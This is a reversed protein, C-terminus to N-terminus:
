GLHFFRRIFVPYIERWSQKLSRTQLFTLGKKRSFRNIMYQQIITDFARAKLPFESALVAYYELPTQHPQQKINVLSAYFSMKKYLNSAYGPRYAPQLLRGLAARIILILIVGSIISILLTLPSITTDRRAPGTDTDVTIGTDVGEMMMLAENFDDSIENGTFAIGDRTRDEFPTAEFIIWGYGPFYVEPWAHRQKERLVTIGTDEDREGPAYGVSVRVPVGAARLLVAMSSAFNVCNGSREVFLFYDVGDAAEPPSFVETTYPIRALFKQISIAKEYATDYNFTLAQSQWRVRDPLTEPLQLYYDTVWGPYDDGAEMLEETTATSVSTSTSYFQGAKIFRSTKVAVTNLLLPNQRTVEYTTQPLSNTTSEDAEALALDEPILEGIDDIVFGETTEREERVLEALAAIDDPLSGDEAASELDLSYSMRPLTQVSTDLNSSIFDGSLLVVDTKIQPQVTYSMQSRKLTESTGNGQIDSIETGDSINSNFWGTSTYEDYMHMRWYSPRESNIVFNLQTGSDFQGDGFLLDGQEDSKLVVFKGPVAVFFEMLFNEVDARWPIDTNMLSEAKSVRVEPTFWAASTILVSLILVTAGFFKLGARTYGLSKNKFRHDQKMLGALGVLLLSTFIWYYFYTYDMESLNSLNILIVAASFVIAIWANQKKVLFLTATFATVFAIVLLFVAFHLTSEGSELSTGAQSWGQLSVLLRDFRTGTGDPPLLLFAQWIIVGAGVAIAVPWAIFRYKRIKGAIWGTVVAVALVTILSPEPSIWNAQEVSRIVAGFVLFLLILSGWEPWSNAFAKLKLKLM